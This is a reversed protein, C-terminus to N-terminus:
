RRELLVVTEVHHTRPFMDVCAATKPTYDASLLKLDRALTACDCSVYVLKGPAIARLSEVVQPALGKRPPDVIVVDMKKGAKVLEMALQAADACVFRANEVGNRRANERADEIAAPVLEAGLLTKASKALTLGITGTGCYLDLVRETGTLAAFDAVLGYLVEAQHHNVQYFSPISLRFVLGRLTDLLADEGWLTRWGPGLVVNTDRRNENLVVGRLTPAAARLAEVLEEEYPLSQGSVVVAAICEGQANGRVFLHRVLGKRTKEDYAPVHYKVMWDKLARRLSNAWEPQLACADVDVVEHSRPRYFGVKAGPGVPFQVKNRYGDPAGGYIASVPLDLGGIRRLADEVKTKKFFLEEEYDMHRTQCGGCLSFYPCDPTVRHPSPSTVELVKAWAARHGVHEIEVRCTEGRLAGKVFVALGDVRAVATGDSAYGGTTVTYQAGEQVM